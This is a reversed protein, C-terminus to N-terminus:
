SPSRDEASAAYGHKTGELTQRGKFTQEPGGPTHIVLYEVWEAGINQHSHLTRPLIAAADGAGIVTKKGGSTIQLTGKIVFIIETEREKQHEEYGRGPPITVWCVSAGDVGAEKDILVKTLRCYSVYTEVDSQKVLRVGDNTSTM